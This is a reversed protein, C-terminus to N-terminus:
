AFGFWRSLGKKNKSPKATVAPAPRAHSPPPLYMGPFEVPRPKPTSPVGGSTQYYGLSGAAAGPQQQTHAGQPIHSPTKYEFTRQKSLSPTAPTRIPIGIPRTQTTSLPITPAQIQNLSPQSIPPPKIGMREQYKQLEINEKYTLLESRRRPICSRNQDYPCLAEVKGLYINGTKRNIAQITHMKKERKKDLAGEAERKVKDLRSLTNLLDIETIDAIENQSGDPNTFVNLIWDEYEFNGCLKSFLLYDLKETGEDAGDEKTTDPQQITLYKDIEKSTNSALNPRM